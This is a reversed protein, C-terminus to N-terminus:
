SETNGSLATQGLNFIGRGTAAFENTFPMMRGPVSALIRVSM